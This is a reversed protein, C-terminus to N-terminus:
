SPNQPSDLRTWIRSRRHRLQNSSQVRSNIPTHRPHSLTQHAPRRPLNRVMGSPSPQAPHRHVSSSPSPSASSSPGPFRVVM